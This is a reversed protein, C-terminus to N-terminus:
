EGAEEIAEEIENWHEVIYLLTKALDRITEKDLVLVIDPYDEKVFSIFLEANDDYVDVDVVVNKSKVRFVM